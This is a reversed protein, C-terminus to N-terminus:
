ATRQKNDKTNSNLASFRKIGLMGDEISHASYDKHKLYEAFRRIKDGMACVLLVKKEEPFPKNEEDIM